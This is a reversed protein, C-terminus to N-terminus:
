CGGSSCGGGIGPIHIQRRFDIDDNWHIPHVIVQLVDPQLKEQASALQFAELARDFWKPLHSCTIRLKRFNTEQLFPVLIDISNLSRDQSLLSILDIEYEADQQDGVLAPRIMKKDRAKLANELKVKIYDLQQPSFLGGSKWVGIGAEQLLALPLGRIEEVILLVCDELESTLMSIKLHVDALDERIAM